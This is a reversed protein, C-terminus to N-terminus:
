KRFFSFYRLEKVYVPVGHIHTYSKYQTHTIYTPKNSKKFYNLKNFCFRTKEFHSYACIYAYIFM